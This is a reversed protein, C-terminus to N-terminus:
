QMPDVLLTLLDGLPEVQVVPLHVPHLGRLSPPLLFPVRLRHDPDVLFPPERDPDPRTISFRPHDVPLAPIPCPRRRLCHITPLVLLRSVTKIPAASPISGRSARMSHVAPPLPPIRPTPSVGWTGLSCPKLDPYVCVGRLSYVCNERWRRWCVESRTFATVLSPPCVGRMVLLILRQGSVTWVGWAGLSFLM